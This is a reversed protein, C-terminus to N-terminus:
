EDGAETTDPLSKLFLEAATPASYDPMTGENDLMRRVARLHETPILLWEANLANALAHLTSSPLNSANTLSERCATADKGAREILAEFSLGRQFLLDNLQVVFSDIDMTM